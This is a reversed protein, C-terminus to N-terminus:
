QPFFRRRGKGAAWRVRADIAVAEVLLPHFFWVFIVIALCEMLVLVLLFRYTFVPGGDDTLVFAEMPVLSQLSKCFEKAAGWSLADLLPDILNTVLLFLMLFMPVGLSICITSVWSRPGTITPVPPKDNNGLGQDGAVNGQDGGAQGGLEQEEEAPTEPRKGNDAAQGINSSTRERLVPLEINSM